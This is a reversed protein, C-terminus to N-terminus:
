QGNESDSPVGASPKLPRRQRRSPPLDARRYMSLLGGNRGTTGSTGSAGTMSPGSTTSPTADGLMIEVDVRNKPNYSPVMVKDADM